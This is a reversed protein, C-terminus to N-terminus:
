WDPHKDKKLNWDFRDNDNDCLDNDYSENDYLPDLSEFWGSRSAPLLHILHQPIDCLFQSPTSTVRKGFTLRRAAYTIYLKKMARTIAVYCLRREEELDDQNDLSRSHPFLGEEMGVLFVIPFELGKAAHITMLTVGEKAGEAESPAEAPLGEKALASNTQQPTTFHLISKSNQTTEVLAVQELFDTIQPFSAAVSRLEKINELRSADVEVHPDYLDLYATAKLIQDIIELTSLSILDEAQLQDFLKLRRSGIKVARQRSIQDLPNQVLRLYSLLDKIEKREYFRVGGVLHYPIGAHLLSEEILRSQANTRYLIAIDKLSYSPPLLSIQSVVFEAEDLENRAPYLEIKEGQGVKTFLKLIPHGSNKKIVAYAADLITQPSRYNQELSVITLHPFDKELRMLNKYNAGRFAYISQSADGVASLQHHNQCLLRVLEYQATNTDQWEDVLLHSYLNQYKNLIDKQNKFLRVLHLLLDDFDLAQNRHLTNQYHLYVEAIKQQIPGRALQPYETHTILENKAQSIYWGASSPTITKEWGLNKIIDKLLQNQDANDFIVFGASLGLHHAEKRLTRAAFSHFTGAFPLPKQLELLSILRHKMEGAAKNTFTVLLLNYPDIGKEEILWAARHTLVRTKGSGAGAMILLPGSPHTVAKVQAPNLNDLLNPM